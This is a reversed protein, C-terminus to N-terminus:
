PSSTHKKGRLFERRALAFYAVGALLLLEPGVAIKSVQWSLLAFVMLAVPILCYSLFALTRPWRERLLWRIFSGITTFPALAVRSSRSRREIRVFSEIDVRSFDYADLLGILLVISAYLAIFPILPTFTWFLIFFPLALFLLARPTRVEVYLMSGLSFAYGVWIARYLAGDMGFYFGVMGAVGLVLSSLGMLLGAAKFNSKYLLFSVLGGGGLLLLYGVLDGLGM